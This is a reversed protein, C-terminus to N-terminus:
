LRLGSPSQSFLVPPTVIQRVCGDKGIEHPTTKGTGCHCVHDHEPMEIPLPWWLAPQRVHHFDVWCPEAFPPNYHYYAIGWAESMSLEQSAEYYVLVRESHDWDTKKPPPQDASTGPPDFTKM